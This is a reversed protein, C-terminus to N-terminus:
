QCAFSAGQGKRVGEARNGLERREREVAFGMMERLLDADRSKEVLARLARMPKMRPDMPAIGVQVPEDLRYLFRQFRYSSWGRILPSM